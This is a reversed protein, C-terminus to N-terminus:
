GHSIERQLSTGNELTYLSSNLIGIWDDLLYFIFEFESFLRNPSYQVGKGACAPCFTM